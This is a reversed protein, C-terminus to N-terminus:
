QGKRRIGPPTPDPPGSGFLGELFSANPGLSQARINRDRQVVRDAGAYMQMMPDDTRPARKDPIVRPVGLGNHARQMAIIKDEDSLANFTAPDYGATSLEQSFTQYLPHDPTVIVGDDYKPLDYVDVSGARMGRERVFDVFPGRM